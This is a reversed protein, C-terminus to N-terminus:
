HEGGKKALALNTSVSLRPGQRAVAICGRSHATTNCGAFADPALLQHGAVQATGPGSRGRCRVTLMYRWRTWPLWAVGATTDQLPGSCPATSTVQRIRDCTMLTCPGRRSISPFLHTRPKGAAAKGCTELLRQIRGARNFPAPNVRRTAAMSFRHFLRPRGGALCIPNKSGICARGPGSRTSEM